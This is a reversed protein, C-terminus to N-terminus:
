GVQAAEEVLEGVKRNLGTRSKGNPERDKNRGAADGEGHHAGGSVGVLLLAPNAPKALKLEMKLKM